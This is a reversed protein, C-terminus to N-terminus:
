SAPMVLYQELKGDPETYTTINLQRSSNAFTVRFARFTMGGRLREATQQVQLPKGLPALSSAYDQLAQQSFYANCWPTFLSRDIKGQQFNEFLERAQTEAASATEQTVGLLLPAVERGIMGAARSADENTLVAIAIKDRPFVMNEAVFGSVEGSHELEPHGSMSDIFLGLGYHSNTGNKLMVPAFMEDYSKPELLLRNMVSIDWQALDYAPMALEGAAFMWGRGEKPAPHLPGLAYRIYGEADPKDLKQADSNWVEKMDLPRFIHEQLFQMLPEGSVMEVIRGAIVFNTNSYQWQTGPDFDLPKKGWTDLIHQATTPESMPPMLYDEPWYDQYGSTHSLLMRITVESARTLDPLYKSVPDNISLKGQQELLLVAAATFQKSISGISYRMPPTAMEAPELRAKGYAHTYAIQGDRVIALSASPVGTEALVQEAAQDIKQQLDAPLTHVAMQDQAFASSFALSLLLLYGTRSM